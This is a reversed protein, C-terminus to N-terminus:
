IFMLTPFTGKLFSSTGTGREQQLFPVREREENRDRFFFANGNRETATLRPPILPYIGGWSMKEKINIVIVNIYM